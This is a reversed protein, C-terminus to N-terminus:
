RWRRDPPIVQGTFMAKPDFVQANPARWVPEVEAAFARAGGNPQRVFM